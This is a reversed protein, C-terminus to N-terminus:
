RKVDKYGMWWREGVGKEDKEGTQRDEKVGDRGWGWGGYGESKVRDGESELGNEVREFWGWWGKEMWESVNEGEGVAEKKGKEIGVIRREVGRGEGGLIGSVGM